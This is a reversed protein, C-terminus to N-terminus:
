PSASLLAHQEAGRAPPDAEAEDGSECRTSLTSKTRMTRLGTTRSCGGPISWSARTVTLTQPWSNESGRGRVRRTGGAQQSALRSIWYGAGYAM